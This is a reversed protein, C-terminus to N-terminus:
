LYGVVETKLGIRDRDPQGVAVNKDRAAEVRAERVHRPRDKHVVCLILNARLLGGQILASVGVRESVLAVKHVGDSAPRYISDELAAFPVRDVHVPPLSNCVEVLSSACHRGNDELVRVNVNEAAVLAAAPDVGDLLVINGVVLPGHEGDLEREGHLSLRGGEDRAVLDDDQATVIVACAGLIGHHQVQLGHLEYLEARHRVGSEQVAGEVKRVMNVDEAAHVVAGALLHVHIVELPLLHGRVLVEDHVVQLSERTSPNSGFTCITLM